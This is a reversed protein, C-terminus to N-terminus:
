ASCVVADFLLKTKDLAAIELSLKSVVKVRFDVISYVKYAESNSM